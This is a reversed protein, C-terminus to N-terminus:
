TICSWAMSSCFLASFDTHHCVLGGSMSYWARWSTDGVQVPSAPDEPMRCTALDVATMYWQSVLNQLHEQTVESLTWGLEEM